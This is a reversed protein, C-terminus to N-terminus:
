ESFIVEFGSYKRNLRNDWGVYDGLKALEFEGPVMEVFIVDGKRIGLRKADGYFLCHGGFQADHIGVWKLDTLKIEIRKQTSEM